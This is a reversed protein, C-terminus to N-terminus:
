IRIVKTVLRRIIAELLKNEMNDPLLILQITGKQLKELTTLLSIGLDDHSLYELMGDINLYCLFREDKMGALTLFAYYYIDQYNKPPYVTICYKVPPCGRGKQISIGDIFRISDTNIKRNQLDLVLDYTNESFTICLGELGSRVLRELLDVAKAYYEKSDIIVLVIDEKAFPLGKELKTIEEFTAITRLDMDQSVNPRDRVRRTLEVLYALRKQDNHVPVSIIDYDLGDFGRKVRHVVRDEQLCKLSPSDVAPSDLHDFVKFSKHNLVNEMLFGKHELAENVWLIDYEPSLVCVEDDESSFLNVLLTRLRESIQQQM